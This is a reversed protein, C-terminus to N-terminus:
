NDDDFAKQNAFIEKAATLKENFEAYEPSKKVDV